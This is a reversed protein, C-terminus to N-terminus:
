PKDLYLAILEKSSSCGSIEMVKAIYGEVTRYSIDMDRAMEKSSKGQALLKLCVAQQETLHIPAHSKKHFIMQDKKDIQIKNSHMDQSILKVIKMVHEDLANDESDVTLSSIKEYVSDREAHLKNLFSNADAVSLLPAPNRAMRELQMPTSVQVFVVLENSLLKQMKDSCAVASDTAVVINEQQLQQQLIEVQCHYFAEEGQKGLAEHLTKGIRYELGFDADVFQWGLKEAVTKALLAKGAGPQGVIFIRKTKSM